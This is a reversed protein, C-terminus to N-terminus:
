RSCLRGSPRSTTESFVGRRAPGRICEAHRAARGKSTAYIWSGAENVTTWFIDKCGAERISNRVLREVQRVGPGAAMVIANVENRRLLEVLPTMLERSGDGNSSALPKEPFARPCLSKRRDTPQPIQPRHRSIM